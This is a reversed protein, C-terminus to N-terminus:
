LPQRKYVDLHTYSVPAVNHALGAGGGGVPATLLRQVAKQLFVIGDADGTGDAANHAVQQAGVEGELVACLRDRICM